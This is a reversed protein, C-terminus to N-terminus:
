RGYSLVGRDGFLRTEAVCVAGLGIHSSRGAASLKPADQGCNWL